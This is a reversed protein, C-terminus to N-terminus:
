AAAEFGVHHEQTFHHLCGRIFCVTLFTAGIFVHFGHFGTALFFCSGYIGDSIDFPASIYEFGQLALFIFGLFLTLGLYELM